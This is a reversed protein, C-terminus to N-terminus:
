ITTCRHAYICVTRQDSPLLARIAFVVIQCRRPEEVLRSSEFPKPDNFGVPSPAGRSLTARAVACIKPRPPPVDYNATVTGNNSFAQSQRRTMEVRELLVRHEFHAFPSDVLAADHPETRVVAPDAFTEIRERPLSSRDSLNQRQLSRQGIADNERVSCHHSFSDLERRGDDLDNGASFENADVLFLKRVMGCLMRDRSKAQCM